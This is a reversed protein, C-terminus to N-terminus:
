RRQRTWSGDPDLVMQDRGLRESIRYNIEVSNLKSEYTTMFREAGNFGPLTLNEPVVIGRLTQSVLTSDGRWDFGGFYTLEFTHDRNKDDRGLEFGLTVDAGPTFQM